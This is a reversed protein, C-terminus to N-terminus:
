GYNMEQMVRQISKQNLYMTTNIRSADPLDRRYLVPEVGPQINGIIGKMRMYDPETFVNAVNGCGEIQLTHMAEDDVVIFNYM